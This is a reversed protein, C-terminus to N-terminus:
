CASKSANFLCHYGVKYDGRESVDPVGEFVSFYLANLLSITLFDMYKVWLVTGSAKM